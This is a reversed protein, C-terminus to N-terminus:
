ANRSFLVNKLEQGLVRPTLRTQYLEFAHRSIKKRLDGDKKLALIEDALEQSNEPEVLIINQKDTFLELIVEHRGSIVPKACAAAEVIKNPIVMKAKIGRGFVGLCVDAENILAALGQYDVERVFNVNKLGLSDVRNFVEQYKSGFRTVVRFEIDCDHSLERAAGIVTQLGHFPVIHGHWHVIFKKQAPEPKEPQPFFIEDDSGVFIRHFKKRPLNYRSVFYDIQAATDLLVRNAFLCSCYDLLWYYAARPSTKSCVQRDEVNTLYLSVFADFVVPKQSILRAFWMVSFGSFAVLLVDYKGRLRKHQRYLDFFKKFGPYRTRCEVIEVGNKKLGEALVKNRPYDCQYNGFFCVKM